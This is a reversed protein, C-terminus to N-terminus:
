GRRMRHRISKTCLVTGVALFWCAWSQPEPVFLPAVGGTAPQIPGRTSSLLIRWAEQEGAPNTGTGVIANGDDSIAAVEGLSWGGLDPLGYQSSLVDTLFQMGGDPTWLFPATFEPEVTVLTANGVVLDGRRSVDIADYELCCIDIPLDGLDLMGDSENWLFARHFFDPLGEFSVMTASGVVFEGGASVASATTHMYANPVDSPIYPVHGLGIMGGQETWVFPEVTYGEWIFPNSSDPASSASGVIVEGSASIDAAFSDGTLTLSGLDQIAGGSWRVARHYPPLFVFDGLFENTGVITQGGRSSAVATTLSFPTLAGLGQPVTSNAWVAASRGFPSDSRGAVHRGDPSVGLASSAGPIGGPLFDLMTFGSNGTWSFGQELIFGHTNPALEHRGVVVKGNASVDTVRTVYGEQPNGLGEFTAIQGTAGSAAEFTAIQATADTAALGCFITMLVSTLLTNRM